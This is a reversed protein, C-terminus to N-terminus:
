AIDVVHHQSCQLPGSSASCTNGLCGMRLSLGLWKERVGPTSTATWGQRKDLMLVIGHKQSKDGGVVEWFIMLFM